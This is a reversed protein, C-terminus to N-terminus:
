SALPDHQGSTSPEESSLLAQFARLKRKARIRQVLLLAFQAIVPMPVSLMYFIFLNHPGGSGLAQGPLLGACFAVAWALSLFFWDWHWTRHSRAASILFINRLLSRRGSGM